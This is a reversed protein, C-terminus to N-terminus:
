KERTGTNPGPMLFEVAASFLGDPDIRLIQLMKGATTGEQRLLALFMHMRGIERNGLLRAEWSAGQLIQRVDSSFSQRLPSERQGQGYFAVALDGMLQPKIGWLRLLRGISDQGRSFVLLFHASGVFGHGMERALDAAEKIVAAGDARYRM